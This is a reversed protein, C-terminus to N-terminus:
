RSSADAGTTINSFARAIFQNHNVLLVRTIPLSLDAICTLADIGQHRTATMTCMGRSFHQMARLPFPCRVRDSPRSARVVRGSVCSRPLLAGSIRRAAAERAAHAVRQVRHVHPVLREVDQAVLLDPLAQLLVRLPGRIRLRTSSGRAQQSHRGAWYTSGKDFELLFRM